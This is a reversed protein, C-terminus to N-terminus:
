ELWKWDLRTTKRLRKRQDDTFCGLICDQAGTDLYTFRKATKRAMLLKAFRSMVTSDVWDSNVKCTWHHDVGDLKFALWAEEKMVEVYDEVELLPLEGGALDRLRQAILVYAGHGEICESDFHWLNQSLRPEDGGLAAAVLIYPTEEFQKRPCEEILRDLTAEPLLRVGGARLDSLQRELSPKRGFLGGFM